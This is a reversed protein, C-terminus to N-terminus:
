LDNVAKSLTIDKETVGGASHTSFTVRVKKYSHLFIDPHHDHKEALPAIKGIFAVADMFNKLFFERFISKAQEDYSWGDPLEDIITERDLLPM